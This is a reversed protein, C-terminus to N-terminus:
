LVGKSTMAQLRQWEIESQLALVYDILDNKTKAALQSRGLKLAIEKEAELSLAYEVVAKPNM